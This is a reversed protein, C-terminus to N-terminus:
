GCGVALTLLVPRKMVGYAVREWFRTTSRRRLFKPLVNLSNIREGLLGLLALLLTDAVLVSISVVIIGGLCLSRFFVLDVFFMGMLGILVAVGSFFISKGATQCTMAVAEAVTPQKKLEERFRSVLFLAYDIGVALGLMTVMNPLFNSLSYHQAIFYTIGLTATVSMLGVVMPLVAGVLTDFVVLLVLLALPLGIAESKAIDSKSAQQMDYLIAPGGSVYVNMGEPPKVMKKIEPYKALALDTELKLAVIVTQVDNHGDNRPTSSFSVSQIYPLEKLGSLSDMILQKQSEQTLDAGDRTYVLNLLSAPLDLERQLQTLGRNSDSGKPTFGNDTLLGPTKQALLGFGVLLLAWVIVIAVRYRYVAHGLRWFTGKNATERV